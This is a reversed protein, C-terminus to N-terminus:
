RIVIQAAVTDAAERGKLAAVLELGFPIAGRLEIVPVMATAFTMLLKGFATELFPM